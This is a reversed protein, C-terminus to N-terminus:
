NNKLLRNVKSKANLLSKHSSVLRYHSPFNISNLPKHNYNYLKIDVVQYCDNDIVIIYPCTIQSSIMFTANRGLISTRKNWYNKM